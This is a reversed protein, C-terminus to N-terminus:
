CFPHNNGFFLIVLGASFHVNYQICWGYATFGLLAIIMASYWVFGGLRMEPYGHAAKSKSMRKIYLRDSAQGALMGGVVNGVAIPLYCLGVTGSDFGYQITYIRTFNTNVIYNVMFRIMENATNCIM